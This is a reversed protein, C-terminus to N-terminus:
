KWTMSDMFISARYSQFPKGHFNAMSGPYHCEGISLTLACVKRVIIRQYESTNLSEQHLECGRKGTTLIHKIIGMLMNMNLTFTSKYIANFMSHISELGMFVLRFTHVKRNIRFRFKFLWLNHVRM